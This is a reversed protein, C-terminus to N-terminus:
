TVHEKLISTNWTECIFAHRHNISYIEIKHLLDYSISRKDFETLCRRTYPIIALKLRVVHLVYLSRNGQCLFQRKIMQTLQMIWTWSTNLTYPIMRKQMALHDLVTPTFLELLTRLFKHFINDCRVTNSWMMINM